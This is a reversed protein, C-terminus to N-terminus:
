AKMRNPYKEFVDFACREPCLVACKRVLDHGKSQAIGSRCKLLCHVIKDLVHPLERANVDVVDQDVGLGQLIMKLCQTLDVVLQTLLTEKGSRVFAGPCLWLDFVTTKDKAFM